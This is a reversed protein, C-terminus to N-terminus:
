SLYVIEGSRENNNNKRALKFFDPQYNIYYQIMLTEKKGAFFQFNMNRESEPIHRM